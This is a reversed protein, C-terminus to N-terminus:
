GHVATGAGSPSTVVSKVSKVVLQEVLPEQEESRRKAQEVMARKYDRPM